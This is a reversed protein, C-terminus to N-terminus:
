FRHSLSFHFVVDPSANVVLDETVGIDLATRPSFALTGGTTLQVSGADVQTFDSGRYFSTHANAQIKLALWQLPSWGVGLAGFAVLPRQQEELVKGKTMGLAGAAGFLSLHGLSLKVDHSGALWLALDASGSGRLGDSDGTPLKLSARLSIAPSTNARGPYIQWGGTLRIDGLGDGSRSFNLLTRGDKEYRYLLRNRPALERGGNPFGFTHHYSEIFHDTFGGGIM